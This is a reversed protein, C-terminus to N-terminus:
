DGTKLFRFLESGNKFRSQNFEFLGGSGTVNSITNWNGSASGTQLQYSFGAETPFSIQLDDRATSREIGLPGLVRLPRMMDHDEHELIHCHYVYNGTFGEWRIALRMVQNIGILATDKPGDENPPVIVTQALNLYSNLPKLTGAAKDRKYLAVGGPKFPIRELIRFHVLHIHFPHNEDTLNLVNWIETTGLRPDEEVPDTYHKENMLMLFGPYQNLTIDRTKISENVLVQKDVVPTLNTPISSIDPVSNSLGVRFQMMELLPFDGPQIPKGDQDPGFCSTINSLVLTHGNRGTFDVIVDAREGTGLLISSLEVPQSLFGAETGIQHWKLGDPFALKLTRFNSGNLLRFRYRRPEVEMYPWIKGNVLAVEHCVGSYLFRADATFDRDQFMLPIEFAGFPLNLKKEMAKNRILYFGALGAYVNQSTTGITHDHYWFTGGEDSINPYRYQVSNGSKIWAEPHGDFQPPTRGGHFHVVTRVDDNPVGHINTNVPLWAPYKRPLQNFYHVVVPQNTEVEITPGPYIGGYGWVPTSQLDRHLHTYAEIMPIEYVQVGKEYYSPEAVESIPLRDVYKALNSTVM